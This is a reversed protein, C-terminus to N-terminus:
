SGTADRGTVDAIWTDILKRAISLKPPIAPLENVSYWRADAIEQGDVVIEGGAYDAFFGVMLSHPFPWPQSGFYRINTVSIGVEERVERELTEELSEGPEVFGALTSYFASAFRASHALLAEDGRRVLVIIAPSIRPYCSLGCARCQVCREKPHRATPLGCRGCYRHTTGFKVIQVARGAVAFVEEELRGYLGRLGQASLPVTLEVEDAAIAFCDDGNLQGMYHAESPELGLAGVDDAGPLRVRDGDSLVVLATDRVLFWFSQASAIAPPTVGPLFTM